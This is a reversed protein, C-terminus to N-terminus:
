RDKRRVVCSPPPRGSIAHAVDSAFKLGPGGYCPLPASTEPDYSTNLLGVLFLAIVALTAGVYVRGKPHPPPQRQFPLAGLRAPDLRGRASLVLVLRSFHRTWPPVAKRFMYAAFARELEPGRIDRGFWRRFALRFFDVERLDLASSADMVARCDELDRRDSHIPDTKL